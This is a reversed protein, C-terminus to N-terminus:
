DILISHKKDYLNLGAYLVALVILQIGVAAQMGIYDPIYIIKAGEMLLADWVEFSGAALLTGIIFGMLVVIQLLFGEGIRMLTGSACGGAVVMGVGFIIAGIATNVGAPEIQGIPLSGPAPAHVTQIIGFGITMIMLSVVVARIVSTSGVLVPDRFSAAFCFKSRQLTYGIMLGILWTWGGTLSNRWICLFIVLATAIAIWGSRIQSKKQKYELERKRKMEEIRSSGM